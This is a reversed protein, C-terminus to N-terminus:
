TKIKGPKGFRYHLWSGADIRGDRINGCVSLIKTGDGTPCSLHDTEGQQCLTQSFAAPALSLALLAALIHQKM